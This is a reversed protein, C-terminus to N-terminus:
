IIKKNWVPKNQIVLPVSSCQRNSFTNTIFDDTSQQDLANSSTTGNKCNEKHKMLLSELKIKEALLQKKENEIMNQQYQLSKLESELNEEINNRKQKCKEAAQRNRRRRIERKVAEDEPLNIYKSRRGSALTPAPNKRPRVVIPGYRKENAGKGSRGHKGQLSGSSFPSVNSMDSKNGPMIPESSCSYSSNSEEDDDDDDLYRHENEYDRNLGYYNSEQKIEKRILSFNGQEQNNPINNLTNYTDSQNMQTLPQNQPTSYIYNSDIKNQSSSLVDDTILEDFNPMLDVLDDMNLPNACSSSFLQPISAESSSNSYIYDSGPSLHNLDVKSIDLLNTINSNSTNNINSINVGTTFTNAGSFSTTATTTPTFDINSNLASNNSISSLSVLHNSNSSFYQLSNPSYSSSNNVSAAINTLKGNSDELHNIHPPM